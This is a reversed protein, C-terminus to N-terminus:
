RKNVKAKKAKQVKFNVKEFEKQIALILRPISEKWPHNVLDNDEQLIDHILLLDKGNIMKDKEGWTTQFQQLYSIQKM